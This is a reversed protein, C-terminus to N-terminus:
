VMVNWNNPMLMCQRPFRATTTSVFSYYDEPVEDRREEGILFAVKQLQVPTLSKGDAAAIIKLLIDARKIKM